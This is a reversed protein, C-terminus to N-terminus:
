SGSTAPPAPPQLFYFVREAQAIADAATQPYDVIPTGNDYDAFTRWENLLTLAVAAQYRRTRLHQRLRGHDAGFGTPTFGLYDEAYQLAHRFAAYYARNIVGRFVTEPDAGAPPTALMLRALTLASAPDFDM